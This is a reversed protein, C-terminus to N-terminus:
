GRDLEVHSSRGPDAAFAGFDTVPPVELGHRRAERTEDAPAAPEPGYILDFVRLRADMIAYDVSDVAAWFLRTLRDFM